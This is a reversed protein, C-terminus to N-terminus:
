VGVNNIDTYYHDGVANNNAVVSVTTAILSSGRRKMPCNSFVNTRRGADM